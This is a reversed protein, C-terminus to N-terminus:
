QGTGGPYRTYTLITEPEVALYCGDGPQGWTTPSTHGAAVILADARDFLPDGAHLAGARGHVIVALDIGTFLTLSVEPRRQVMRYRAATHTTPICFTGGVLLCGIPAVRPAGSATATAFAVTVVGKFAALLADLTLAHEPWEFSSRVFPGANEMSRALVTALRAREEPTEHM